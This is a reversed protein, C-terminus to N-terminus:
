KGEKLIKEIQMLHNVDHGTVLDIFHAVTEVGREQHIGHNEWLKRPVRKLLTLNDERLTRFSQLSERPDRRAYHFADAWADQNYGEIAVGNTSIMQRLRWSVAIESDALHALVEAVSWKGPAPRHTLQKKSKGKILAALKGPTERQVRLPQKGEIYSLIRRTYQEATEKM